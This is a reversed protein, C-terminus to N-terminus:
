SAMAFFSALVIFGSRLVLRGGYYSWEVEYGKCEKLRNNGVATAATARVEADNDKL